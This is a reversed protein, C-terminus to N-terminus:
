LCYIRGQRFNNDNNQIAEIEENEKKNVFAKVQYQHILDLSKVGQIGEKIDQTQARIIEVEAEKLQCSLEMLEKHKHLENKSKLLDIRKKEVELQREDLDCRMNELALKREEKQFSKKDEDMELINMNHKNIIKLFKRHTEKNSSHNPEILTDEDLKITNYELSRKPM